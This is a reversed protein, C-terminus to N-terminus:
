DVRCILVNAYPPLNSVSPTVYSIGHTHDQAENNGGALVNGGIWSLSGTQTDINHTHTDSGGGIPKYATDCRLFKGDLQVERSTGAPCSGNFSLFAEGSSLIYKGLSAGNKIKDATIENVGIKDNTVAGNAIKASTVSLDKYNATDIANLTSIIQAFEADLETDLLPTHGDSFQTLQNIISM